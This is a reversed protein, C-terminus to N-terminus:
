EVIVVDGITIVQYLKENWEIGHGAHKDYRIIDGDRIHEVKDGV